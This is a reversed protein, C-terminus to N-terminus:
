FITRVSMKNMDDNFPKYLKNHILLWAISGDENKVESRYAICINRIARVEESIDQHNCEDFISGWAWFGM